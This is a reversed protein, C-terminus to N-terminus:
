KHVSRRLTQKIQSCVESVRVGFLQYIMTYFSGQRISSVDYISDTRFKKDILAASTLSTKALARITQYVKESVKQQHLVTFLENAKLWLAMERVLEARVVLLNSINSTSLTGSARRQYVAGAYPCYRVRLKNVILRLCLENDQCCPQCENWSGVAILSERKFLLTGTQAFNYDLWDLALDGPSCHQHPIITENDADFCSPKMTLFPGYVVDSSDCYALQREIKQPLLLDDSDLFQIWSGSSISLGRNRAACAGRNPGTKWHIRDGFSKVVKLSDDTSGDDIVIVECLSHTQDLASQIAEAIYEEANYCPIIISVLPSPAPQLCSGAPM